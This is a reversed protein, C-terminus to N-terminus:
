KKKKKFFFIYFDCMESWGFFIGGAAAGAGPAVTPARM